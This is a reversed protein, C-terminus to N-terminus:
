GSNPRGVLHYFYVGRRTIDFVTPAPPRKIAGDSSNFPVLMTQGRTSVLGAVPWHIGGCRPAQGDPKFSGGVRDFARRETRRREAVEGIRALGDRGGAAANARDDDHDVFPGGGSTVVM